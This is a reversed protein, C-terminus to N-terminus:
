NQWHRVIQELHNVYGRLEDLDCGMSMIQDDIIRELHALSERYRKLMKRTQYLSIFLLGYGVFLVGIIIYLVTMEFRWFIITTAISYLFLGLM